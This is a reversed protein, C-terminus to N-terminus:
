GSNRNVSQALWARTRGFKITRIPGGRFDSRQYLREFTVDGILVAAEQRSLLDNLKLDGFEDQKADMYAVIKDNVSELEGPIPDGRMPDQALVRAVRNVDPIYAAITGGFAFSRIKERGAIRNPGFVELWEGKGLLDYVEKSTYFRCLLLPAGEDINRRAAMEAFKAM